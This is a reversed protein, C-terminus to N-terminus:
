HELKGKTALVHAAVNSELFHQPLTLWTQWSSGRRTAWEPCCESCESAWCRAGGAEGPGSSSIHAKAAGSTASATDLYSTSALICLGTHQQSNNPIVGGLKCEIMRPQKRFPKELHLLHKAIGEHHTVSSMQMGALLKVLLHNIQGHLLIAVTASNQASLM